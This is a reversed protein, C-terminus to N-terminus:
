GRDSGGLEFPIMSKSVEDWFFIPPASFRPAGGRRYRRRERDKRPSDKEAVDEAGPERLSTATSTRSPTQFACAPGTTAGGIEPVRRAWARARVRRCSGRWRIASSRDVRTLGRLSLRRRTAPM